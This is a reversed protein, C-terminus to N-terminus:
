RFVKDGVIKSPKLAAAPSVELGYCDQDVAWAFLRKAYGLLAWEETGPAGTENPAAHLLAWAQRKTVGGWAVIRDAIYAYDEPTPAEGTPLIGEHFVLLSDRQIIAHHGSLFLLACASACYRNNRSVATSFGRKQIIDGIDLTEGILGGPGSLYVFTGAPYSRTIAAFRNADGDQITGSLCIERGYCGGINAAGATEVWGLAILLSVIRMSAFLRSSISCTQELSVFIEAEQWYTGAKLHTTLSPNRAWPKALAGAGTPAASYFTLATEMNIKIL